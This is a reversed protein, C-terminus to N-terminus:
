LLHVIGLFNDLAYSIIFLSNIYVPKNNPVLKIVARIFPYLVYEVHNKRNVTVVM